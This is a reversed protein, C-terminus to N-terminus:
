EVFGKSYFGHTTYLDCYSGHATIVAGLGLFKGGGDCIDDVILYRKGPETEVTPLELQGSEVDRHKTAQILPLGVLTAV